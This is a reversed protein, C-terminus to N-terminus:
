NIHKYENLLSRTFTSWGGMSSELYKAVALAKHECWPKAVIQIGIPCGSKTKAVPVVVVPWGTLSYTMCFSFGKVKSMIGEAPQASFSAVPCLIVDHAKFVDLMNFCFKDIATLRHRFESLSFDTQEALAVFDSFLESPTDLNLINQIDHWSKGKDGGGLLTEFMLKYSDALCDPQYAECSNVAESISQASQEVAAVIDDDVEIDPLDHYYAINLDSLVVDKYNEIAVPPCYPDIQDAGSLNEYMFALDDVWRAMFGFSAFRSSIGPGDNPVGGTSPLRGQTVKLGAIGCFHAPVRISGCADSGIGAPSGGAAIAAAEGGSSGGPSLSLDHPNLTRGYLDNTTDYALLFEPVNTQGLVLGGSAKLRKLVTADDDARFGKLAMSGKACVYGQMRMADKITFPIGALAGLEEGQKLLHDITDASDRLKTADEFQTIANLKEQIMKLRSYFHDVVMRSSVNAKKIHSALSRLPEDAINM